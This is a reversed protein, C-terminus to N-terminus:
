ADPQAGAVDSVDEILPGGHVEEFDDRLVVHGRAAARQLYEVLNGLKIRDDHM